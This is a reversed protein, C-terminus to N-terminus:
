SSPPTVVSAVILIVGRRLPSPGPPPARRSRGPFWKQWSRGQRVLRCLDAGAALDDLAAEGRAVGGFPSMAPNAPVVGYLSSVGSKKRACRRHRGLARLVEVVGGLRVVGHRDDGQRDLDGLVSPMSCALSIMPTVRSPVFHVDNASHLVSM